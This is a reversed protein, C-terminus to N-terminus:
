VKSLQYHKATAASFPFNRQGAQYQHAQQYGRRDDQSVIMAGAIIVGAINAVKPLHGPRTGIDLSWKHRLDHLLPTVGGFRLLIRL